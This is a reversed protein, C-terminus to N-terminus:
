QESMTQMRDARDTGYRRVRTPSCLRGLKKIESGQGVKIEFRFSVSYSLMLLWVHIDSILRQQPQQDLYVPQLSV